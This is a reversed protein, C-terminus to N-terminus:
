ITFTQDCRSTDSDGRDVVEVPDRRESPFVVLRWGRRLEPLPTEVSGSGRCACWTEAACAGVANPYHKALPDDEALGKCRQDRPRKVSWSQATPYAATAEVAEAETLGSFEAALHEGEMSEFYYRVTWPRKAASEPRAELVRRGGVELPRVREIVPRYRPLKSMAAFLEGQREPELTAVFRVAPRAQAGEPGIYRWPGYAPGKV